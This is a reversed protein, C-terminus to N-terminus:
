AAARVGIVLFAKRGSAPSTTRTVLAVAADQDLKVAAVGDGPERSLRGAVVARHVVNEIVSGPLVKAAQECAKATAFILPRRTGKRRERARRQRERRCALCDRVGNPRVRLEDIPHGCPSM